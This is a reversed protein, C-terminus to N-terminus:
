RQATMKKKPPHRIYMEWGTGDYKLRPYPELPKSTDDDYLPGDCAEDVGMPKASSLFPNNLDDTMPAQGFADERRGIGAATNATAPFNGSIFEDAGFAQASNGELGSGGFPDFADGIEQTIATDFKQDFADDWGTMQGLQPRISRPAEVGFIAAGTTDKASEDSMGFITAGTSVVQPTETMDAFIADGTSMPPKQPTNSESSSSSATKQNFNSELYDTENASVTVPDEAGGFLSAGISNAKVTVDECKTVSEDKVAETPSDELDNDKSVDVEKELEEDKEPTLDSVSVSAKITDGTDLLDNSFIGGFGSSEEKDSKKDTVNQSIPDIGDSPQSIDVTIEPMQCDTIQVNATTDILSAVSNKTELIPATIPEGIDGFLSAGVTNANSVGPMDPMVESTAPPPPLPDDDTISEQKPPPPLAEDASKESPQKTGEQMLNMPPPPPMEDQSSSIVDTAGLTVDNSASKTDNVVEAPPLDDIAAAFPNVKSADPMIEPAPPPQASPTVNPQSFNGATVQSYQGFQGHHQQHQPQQPTGSQPYYSSTNGFPSNSPQTSPPAAGFSAAFPNAADVPPQPTGYAGYHHQPQHMPPAAMGGVPAGFPNAQPMAVGGAPAGFPNAQPMAMGGFPNAVGPPAGGAMYPNPPQGGGPAPAGFLFPNPNAM